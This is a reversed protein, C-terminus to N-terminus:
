SKEEDEQDDDEHPDYHWNVTETERDLGTIRGESILPHSAYGSVFNILVVISRLTFDKM